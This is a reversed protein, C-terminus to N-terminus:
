RSSDYIALTRMIIGYADIRAEIWRVSGQVKPVFTLTGM